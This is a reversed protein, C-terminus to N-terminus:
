HPTLSKEDSHDNEEKPLIIESYQITEGVTQTYNM